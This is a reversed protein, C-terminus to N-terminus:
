RGALAVLASVAFVTGLGAGMAALISKGRRSVWLTVGAGAALALLDTLRGASTEARIMSGLLAAIAVPFILDNVRESWAPLRLYRGGVLFALRLALTGAAALLIVTWM